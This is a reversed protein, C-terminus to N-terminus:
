LQGPGGFFRNHDTGGDLWDHDGLINEYSGWGKAGGKDSRAM